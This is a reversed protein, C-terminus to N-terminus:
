TAMGICIFVGVGSHSPPVFGDGLVIGRWGADQLFPTDIFSRFIWWGGVGLLGHLVFFLRGFHRGALGSHRSLTRKRLPVVRVVFGFM